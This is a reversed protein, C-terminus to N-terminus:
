VPARDAVMGVQKGSQDFWTLQSLASAEGAQYALLGASCTSPQSMTADFCVALTKVIGRRSASEIFFLV